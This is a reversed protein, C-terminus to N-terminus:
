LIKNIEELTKRLYEMSEFIDDTELSHNAKPYKRFIVGWKECLREVVDVNVWQDATGSFAILRNCPPEFTMELPTLFVQVAGPCHKNGYAAAAYTGISKSIFVVKEYKPFDVAALQEESQKFAHLAAERMKEANGKAGNPFDTFKLKIVEYGKTKALRACYYLLPKDCHYGIGPFLVCLKM